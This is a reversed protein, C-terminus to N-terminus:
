KKRDFFSGFDQKEKINAARQRQKMKALEKDIDAAMGPDSQKVHLFDAEAQKYDGLLVHTTAKRFLAKPHDPQERCVFM